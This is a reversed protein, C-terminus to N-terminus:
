PAGWKDSYLDTELSDAFGEGRQFLGSGAAASYGAAVMFMIGLGLTIWGVSETYINALDGIGYILSFLGTMILLAGGIFGVYENQMILAFGLIVISAIALILFLSLNSNAATGTSTVAFDYTRTSNYGNQSCTIKAPYEGLTDFVTTYNFIGGDHYTMDQNDVLYTLNANPNIDQITLKCTALTSCPTGGMVCPIIIQSTDYQKYTLASTFQLLFVFVLILGIKKLM